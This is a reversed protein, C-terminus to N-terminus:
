VLVLFTTISVRHALSDMLAPPSPTLLSAETVLYPVVRTFASVVGSLHQEGAACVLILVVLVLRLFPVSFIREGGSNDTPCITLEYLGSNHARM